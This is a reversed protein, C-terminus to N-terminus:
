KYEDIQLQVFSAFNKLDYYGYTIPSPTGVDPPTNAPPPVVCGSMLAIFGILGVVISIRKISISKM